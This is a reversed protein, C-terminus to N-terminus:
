MGPPPRRLFQNCLRLRERETEPTELTRTKERFRKLNQRRRKQRCTDSCIKAAGSQPRFTAGCVICEKTFQYYRSM